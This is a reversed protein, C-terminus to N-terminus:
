GERIERSSFGGGMGSIQQVREGALVLFSSVQVNMAGAREQCRLLRSKELVM